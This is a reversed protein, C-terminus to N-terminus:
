FEYGHITKQFSRRRAKKAEASDNAIEERIRTLRDLQQHQQHEVRHLFGYREEEKMKLLEQQPSLLKPAMKVAIIEVESESSIELESPSREVLETPTISSRELETPTISSSQSLDIQFNGAPSSEM